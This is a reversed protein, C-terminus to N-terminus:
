QEPKHIEYLEAAYGVPWWYLARKYTPHKTERIVLGKAELQKFITLIKGASVGLQGGIQFTLAGIGFVCAADGRALAAVDGRYGHQWNKSRMMNAACYDRLKDLVVAQMSTLKM